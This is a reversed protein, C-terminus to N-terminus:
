AWWKQCIETGGLDQSGVEQHSYPTGYIPGQLLSQQRSQKPITYCSDHPTSNIEQMTIYSFHKRLKSLQTSRVAFQKRLKSLQTSRVAFEIRLKSLQTSRVAFEIKLKSLQTSWVAFEIKLISFLSSRNNWPFFSGRFPKISRNWKENKGNGKEKM